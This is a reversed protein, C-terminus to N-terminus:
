YPFTGSVASKIYKEAKNIYRSIKRRLSDPDLNDPDSLAKNYTEKDYIKAVEDQNQIKQYLEYVEICQNWETILSRIRKKDKARKFDFIKYEPLASYIEEQM